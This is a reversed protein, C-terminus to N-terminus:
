LIGNQVVFLQNCNVENGKYKMDGICHQSMEFFSQFEFTAIQESMIKFIIELWPFDLPSLLLKM